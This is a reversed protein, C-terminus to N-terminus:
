TSTQFQAVLAGGAASVRRWRRAVHAVQHLHAALAAVQGGTRCRPVIHSHAQVIHVHRTHPGVPVGRRGASRGRTTPAFGDRRPRQEVDVRVDDAAMLDALVAQFAGALIDAQEASAARRM